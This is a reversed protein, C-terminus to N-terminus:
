AQGTFARKVKSHCLNMEKGPYERQKPGEEKLLNLAKWVNIEHGFSGLM